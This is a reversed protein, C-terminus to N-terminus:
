ATEDKECKKDFYYPLRVCNAGAIQELVKDQVGKPWDEFNPGKKNM